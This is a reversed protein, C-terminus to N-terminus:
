LKFRNLEKNIPTNEKIIITSANEHLQLRVLFPMENHVITIHKFAGTDDIYEQHETLPDPVYISDLVRANKDVQLCILKDSKKSGNPNHKIKGTTEIKDILEVRITNNAKYARYNLFFLKPEPEKNSPVVTRTVQEQYPMCSYFLVFLVVSILLKNSYLSITM